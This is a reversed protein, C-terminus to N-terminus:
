KKTGTCPADTSTRGCKSCATVTIDPGIKERVMVHGNDAPRPTM